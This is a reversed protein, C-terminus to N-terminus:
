APHPFAAAPESIGPRGTEVHGALRLRVGNASTLLLDYWHHDALIIPVKATADAAVAIKRREGSHACHLAMTVPVSGRNRLQMMGATGDERWVLM